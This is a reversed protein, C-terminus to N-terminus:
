KGVNKMRKITEWEWDANFVTPTNPPPSENPKNDMYKAYIRELEQERMESPCEYGAAFAEKLMNYLTKETISKKSM